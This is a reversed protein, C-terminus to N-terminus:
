YCAKDGVNQSWHDEGGPPLEQCFVCLLSICLMLSIGFIVDLKRKPCGCVESIRESSDPWTHNEEKGGYSNWINEIRGLVGIVWSKLLWRYTDTHALDSWLTRSKTVKHVTAWWAGRNVPNELLISSYTAMCKKLTDRGALFPVPM